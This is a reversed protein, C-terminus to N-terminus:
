YSQGTGALFGGGRRAEPPRGGLVFRPAGLAPRGLAPVPAARRPGRSPSGRVDSGRSGRSPASRRISRELVPLGADRFERGLSRLGRSEFGDPSRGGRRKSRSALPSRRGRGLPAPRFSREGFRSAERPALAGPRALAGYLDRSPPYRFSAAALGREEARGVAEPSREARPGRESPRYSDFLRSRRGLRGDRLRGGPRRRGSGRARSSLGSSISRAL